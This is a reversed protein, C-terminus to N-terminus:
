VSVTLITHGHIYGDLVSPLAAHTGSRLRCPERSELLATSGESLRAALSGDNAPQGFVGRSQSGDPRNIGLRLDTTHSAVFMSRFWAANYSMWKSRDGVRLLRSLNLGRM